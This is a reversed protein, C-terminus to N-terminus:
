IIRRRRRKNIRGGKKGVYGVINGNADKVTRGELTPQGMGGPWQIALWRADARNLADIGINGLNDFLNTL